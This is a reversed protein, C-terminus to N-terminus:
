RDFTELVTLQEPVVEAGYSNLTGIRINKRSGHYDSGGSILLGRKKAEGTLFAIEDQDYRSYYCEFGRVGISVFYELKELFREESLHQEGEGGLPHAWIPIGGSELIATVCAATNQRLHSVGAGNVYKRIAETITDALGRNVLLQALHPKGVSSLGDLWALEEETFCIGREKEMFLLRQKLKERRLWEGYEVRERIAQAEDEYGLGLMHCKSIGHGCTFEIGPIFHLKGEPDRRSLAQRIGACGATTDHDTLAFTHVGAELLHDLLEEPSDSGDSCCSHMHLDIRSTM